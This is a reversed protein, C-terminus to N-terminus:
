KAGGFGGEIESSPEPKLARYTKMVEELIREDRLDPLVRRVFGAFTGVTMGSFIWVRRDKRARLRAVFHESEAVAPAVAPDVIVLTFSPVALAQRIIANVHTDGFGYGIVILTSQPRVVQSAFRRFLESYPMGLIDGYKTPTPYILVKEDLVTSGDKIYVGYPNDWNAREASWNISGHLKYLHIVRDLRHVRGETTEAPFYLDQDYCEPRFIRRLTGVFGDLVVVGESDAAQELLTDYNLTFINARKLSLPRTLVKKFFTKHAELPEKAAYTAPLICRCALALKVERLADDLEKPSAQVLFDESIHLTENRNSLAARWSYLLSLVAEYNAKLEGDQSIRELRNIVGEQQIPVIDSNEALKKTAQYFLVLWNEVKGQATGKVLLDEEIEKSVKGLLLGGADRSAGAGILFSVSDTKLLTGVKIQTDKLFKAWKSEIAKEREEGAMGGLKRIEDRLKGLQDEGGIEFVTNEIIEEIPDKVQRDDM